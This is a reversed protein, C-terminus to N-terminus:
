ILIACYNHKEGQIQPLGAVSLWSGFNIEQILASTNGNSGTQVTDRPFQVNIAQNMAM